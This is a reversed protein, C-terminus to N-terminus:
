GIPNTLLKTEIQNLAKYIATIYEITFDQKVVTSTWNYGTYGTTYVATGLYQEIRKIADEIENIHYYTINTIGPYIVSNNSKINNDIGSLWMTVPYSYGNRNLYHEINNIIDRALKIDFAKVYGARQCTVVNYSLVSNSSFSDPNGPIYSIFLRNDTLEPLDKIEFYTYVPAVCDKQGHIYYHDNINLKSTGLYVKLSDGIFYYRPKFFRSHSFNTIMDDTIPWYHSIIEGTSNNYGHPVECIIETYMFSFKDPNIIAGTFQFDNYTYNSFPVTWYTINAQGFINEYEISM